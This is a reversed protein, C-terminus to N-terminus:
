PGPERAAPAPLAATGEGCGLQDGLRGARPAKGAVGLEGAQGADGRDGSGRAVAGAVAEIAAAIALEVAGTVADCHGLAATIGWGPLEEGFFCASPLDLISASRQRLRWRARRTQFSKISESLSIDM